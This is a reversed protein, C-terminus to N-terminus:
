RVIPRLQVPIEIVLNHRNKRRLCYVRSMRKRVDRAASQIYTQVDLRHQRFPDSSRKRLDDASIKRYSDIVIGERALEPILSGVLSRSQKESMNLVQERIASVLEPGSFGDPSVEVRAGLKEKLASVRIMFFEDLNSGLIAMFKMRELLPSTDDIAEHLVSRFFELLSLDRNIFNAVPKEAPAAKAAASGIVSFNHAVLAM